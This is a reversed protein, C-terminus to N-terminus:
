DKDTSRALDTAVQPRRLLRDIHEAHDFSRDLTFALRPAHRLNVLKAVQGRLYPASRNLGEMVKEASRGALPLVFVTANKLDPSVRVESVTISIGVVDPDRIEGRALVEVLAHRMVEGVRLRRQSPGRPEAGPGDSGKDSRQQRGM